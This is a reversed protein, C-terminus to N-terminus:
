RREIAREEESFEPGFVDEAKGNEVTEVAGHANFGDVKELSSNM